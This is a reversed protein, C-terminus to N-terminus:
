RFPGLVVAVLALIAFVALRVRSHFCVRVLKLTRMAPRGKFDMRLLILEGVVLLSFGSRQYLLHGKLQSFKVRVDHRLLKKPRTLRRSVDAHVRGRKLVGCIDLEIDDSGLVVDAKEPLLGPRFHTSQELVLNLLASHRFHKLLTELEVNLALLFKVEFSNCLFPLFYSM